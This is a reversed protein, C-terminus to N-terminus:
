INEVLTNVYYYSLIEKYNLGNNGLYNAGYQSMGVGHGYGKTKITVVDNLIEIKFDTSRLQLKKRIDTGKYVNNNITITDVHNTSNYTIDNIVLDDNQKVGLKDKIDKLSYNNTVNFNNVNMDWPSDVSVLYPKESFVNKAEETKGNTMSFYYANIPKGDYTVIEGKTSLVANSIKQYNSEFNDKWKSKMDGLSIYAQGKDLILADISVSNNILKNYIFTRAAVAQAKLAEFSFSAPMEAAVVGIVYNEIKEKELNSGKYINISHKYKNINEKYLIISFVEVIVLLFLLKNKM